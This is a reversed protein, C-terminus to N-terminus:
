IGEAFDAFKWRIEIQNGPSVFVKDVLVNVIDQPTTTENLVEKAFSVSKQTAQNDRESQKLAALQHNLRDLQATCDDKLTKYVERDIETIVFQEYCRQRQEICQRIQKECEAARREFDGKKRFGSLNGSALVVEAQKKITTLVADELEFASM